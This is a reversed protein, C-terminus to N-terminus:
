DSGSTRFMSAVSLIVVVAGFLIYGYLFAMQERGFTKDFFIWGWRYVFLFATMLGIRTAKFVLTITLLVMLLMLELSPTTIQTTQLVHFFERAPM